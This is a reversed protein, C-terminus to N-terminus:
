DVEMVYVVDSEINDYKENFKKRKLNSLIDPNDTSLAGVKNLGFLLEDVKIIEIYGNMIVSINEDDEAEFSIIVYNNNTDVIYCESTCLSGKFEDSEIYGLTYLVKMLLNLPIEVFSSVSSSRTTREFIIKDGYYHLILAKKSDRTNISYSKSSPHELDLAADSFKRM